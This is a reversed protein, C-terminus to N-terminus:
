PPGGEAVWRACKLIWEPNTNPFLFRVLALAEARRRQDTSLYDPSLQYSSM